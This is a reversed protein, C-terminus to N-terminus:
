SDEKKLINNSIKRVDYRVIHDKFSFDRMSGLPYLYPYGCSDLGALHSCALIFGIFFGPLGLVGSFILIVNTWISTAGYLKPVLFLSIASLAVVLVTIESAMGSRIAADGLILAGVISIAPGIAQPLRVGAERLLQFFFMMILIELFTPFPVGARLVALRFVFVSPILSFHYTTLALYLGPVLLAILFAVWRILRFYNQPYKNLYYDDAMHIEEMFFHPATLVFPSSDVLVVVRGELVKSVAVDPKETYGITDFATGKCKLEEEIYNTEIIYKQQATKLKSRIYNVLEEPAKGEIYAMIVGTNTEEGVVIREMKFDVNRIKKRILAMNDMISETFGERPGKIVVESPPEEIARAKTYRSESFIMGDIFEFLILTDGSLIHMLAAELSKVDGINNNTLIRGKVGEIDESMEEAEILPTVVNLSVNGCDALSELFIIQIKGKDTDVERIILDHNKKLKEQIYELRDKYKKQLIKKKSM